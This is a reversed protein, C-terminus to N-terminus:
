KRENQRTFTKKHKRTQATHACCVPGRIRERRESQESRLLMEKQHTFSISCCCYIFIRKLRMKSPREFANGVCRLRTAPFAKSLMESRIEFAGSIRNHCRTNCILHGPGGVTVWPRRLPFFFFSLLLRSCTSDNAVKGEAM